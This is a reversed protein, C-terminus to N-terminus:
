IDSPHSYPHYTLGGIVSLATLFRAEVALDIAGSHISSRSLDKRLQKIAYGGYGGNVNVNVSNSISDDISMSCHSHMSHTLCLSTGSAGSTGTATSMRRMSDAGEGESLGRQRKLGRLERVDSFSGSGM